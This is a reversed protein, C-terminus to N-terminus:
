RVQFFIKGSLVLMNKEQLFFKPGKFGFKFPGDQSVTVGGKEMERYDAFPVAVFNPTKFVRM